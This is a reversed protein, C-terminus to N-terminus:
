PREKNAAMSDIHRSVQEDIVKLLWEELEPGIDVSLLVEVPHASWSNMPHLAVTISAQQVYFANPAIKVQLSIPRVRVPLTKIM